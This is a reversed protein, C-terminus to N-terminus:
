LTRTQSFTLAARQLPWCILFNFTPFLCLVFCFGDKYFVSTWRCASFQLRGQGWGLKLPCVAFDSFKSLLAILFSFWINNRLFCSPFFDLGIDMGCKRDGRGWNWLSAVFSKERFGFSGQVKMVQRMVEGSDYSDQTKSVFKCFLQPDGSIAELM